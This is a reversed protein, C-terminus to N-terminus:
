GASPPIPLRFFILPLFCFLAPSFPSPSPSPLFLFTLLLGDRTPALRPPSTLFYKHIYFYFYFHPGSVPAQYELHRNKKNIYGYQTKRGAADRLARSAARINTECKSKQKLIICNVM